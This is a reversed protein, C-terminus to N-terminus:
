VDECDTIIVWEDENREKTAEGDGGEGMYRLLIEKKRSRRQDILAKLEDYIKRTFVISINSDM